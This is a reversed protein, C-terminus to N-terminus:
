SLIRGLQGQLVTINPSRRSYLALRTCHFQLRGQRPDIRAAGVLRRRSGICTCVLDGVCLGHHAGRRGPIALAIPVAARAAQSMHHRQLQAAKQWTLRAALRRGERRLCDRRSVSRVFGLASLWRFSQFGGHRLRVRLDRAAARSNQPVAEANSCWTTSRRRAHASRWAIPRDSAGPFRADQKKARGHFPGGQAAAWSARRRGPATRPGTRRSLVRLIHRPIRV